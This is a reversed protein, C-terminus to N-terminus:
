QISRPVHITLQVSLGLKIASMFKQFYEYIWMGM